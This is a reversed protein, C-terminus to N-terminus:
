TLLLSCSAWIIRAVIKPIKPKILRERIGTKINLPMISLDTRENDKIIIGM